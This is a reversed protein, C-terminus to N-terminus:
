TQFLLIMEVREAALKRGVLRGAGQQSPGKSIWQLMRALDADSAFPYVESLAEAISIKGVREKRYTLDSPRRASAHKGHPRRGNCRGTRWGLGKRCSPKSGLCTGDHTM